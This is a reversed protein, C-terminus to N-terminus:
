TEGDKQGDDHPTDDPQPPTEPPDAPQHESPDKPPAEPPGDPTPPPGDGRMRDLDRQTEDLFDRVSKFHDKLARIALENSLGTQAMAIFQRQDYYAMEWPTTRGERWAALQSEGCCEETVDRWGLRQLTHHLGTPTLTRVVDSAALGAHTLLDGALQSCYFTRSEPLCVSPCQDAVRQRLSDDVGMRTALDSAHSTWTSFDMGLLQLARTGVSQTDVATQQLEDLAYRSGYWELLPAVTPDLAGAPWSLHAPRRLVSRQTTPLFLDPLTVLRVGAEQPIGSWWADDAEPATTAEIALRDDLAVAVHSFWPGHVRAAGDVIVQAACSGLSWKSGSLVFLVDGAEIRSYSPQGLGVDM